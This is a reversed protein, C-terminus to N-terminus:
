DTPGGRINLHNIEIRLKQVFAQLSCWCMVISDVIRIKSINGIVRKVKQDILNILIESSKLMSHMDYKANYDFAVTASTYVLIRIFSISGEFKIAM